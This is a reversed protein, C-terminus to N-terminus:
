HQLLKFVEWKSSKQFVVYTRQMCFLLIFKGKKTQHHVCFLKKANQLKRLFQWCLVTSFLPATGGPIYLGVKQIPRKEQWCFVGRYTEKSVKETKQAKHFITINQHAVRIADKLESDILSIAKTIEDSSVFKNDISVGDFLQTYKEVAFDGNKQVDDFIQLVTKEIDDFTKTPRELIKKWDKQNPNLITKM